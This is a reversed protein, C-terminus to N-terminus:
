RPKLGTIVNPKPIQPGNRRNQTLRFESAWPFGNFRNLMSERM